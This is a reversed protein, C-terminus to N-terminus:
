FKSRHSIDGRQEPAQRASESGRKSITENSSSFFQARESRKRSEVGPLKKGTETM